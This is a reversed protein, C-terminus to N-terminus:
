CSQPGCLPPRPWRPWRPWGQAVEVNISVGEGTRVSFVCGGWHFIDTLTQRAGANYMTLAPRSQPRCSSASRSPSACCPRCPWSQGSQSAAWCVSSRSCTTSVPELKIDRVFIIVAWHLSEDLRVLSPVTSQFSRGRQGPPWPRTGSYFIYLSFSVSPPSWLLHPGAHHFKFCNWQSLLDM